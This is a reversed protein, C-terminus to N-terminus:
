EAGGTRRPWLSDGGTHRAGRHVWEPVLEMRGLEQHHHWTFEGIQARGRLINTKVESVRSVLETASLPQGRMAYSEHIWNSLHSETIAGSEMASRLERTAARMHVTGDVQQWVDQPLRVEFKRVADFIPFGRDCFPIDLVVHDAEMFCVAATRSGYAGERLITEARIVEGSFAEAVAAARAQPVTPAELPAESRLIREVRLTADGAAIGAETVTPAAAATPAKRGITIGGFPAGSHMVAPNTRVEFQQVLAGVRSGMTRVAPAGRVAGETLAMLAAQTAVPAVIEGFTHSGTLTTLGDAVQSELAHVGVGVADLAVGVVPMTVKASAVVPELIEGTPRLLQANVQEAAVATLALAESGGTEALVSRRTTMLQQSQDYGERLTQVEEESLGYGAEAQRLLAERTRYGEAVEGWAAREELTRLADMSDVGVVPMPAGAGANTPLESPARGSAVAPLTGDRRDAPGADRQAQAEAARQHFVTKRATEEPTLAEGDKVKQEIRLIDEMRYRDLNGQEEATLTGETAKTELMERQSDDWEQEMWEGVSTLTSTLQQQLQSGVGSSITQSMGNVMGQLAIGQHKTRWTALDEPPISPSPDGTIQDVAELMCRKLETAYGEFFTMVSALNYTTLAATGTVELLPSLKTKHTRNLTGIFSNIHGLVERGNSKQWNVMAQNVGPMLCKALYEKELARTKASKLAKKAKSRQIFDHMLGQDLAM